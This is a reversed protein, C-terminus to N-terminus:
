RPHQIDIVVRPPDALRFVRFPQEPASLGIFVQQYGEFLVGRQVETVVGASAPEIRDPGRYEQAGEAAPYRVGTVNVELVSRGEIEVPDGRGQNRPDDEYEAFWGPRGHGALDVVVRDYGEHRGFRLDTISVRGQSDAEDRSRDAPFPAEEPPPEEDDAPATPSPSPSGTPPPLASGGATPTPSPTTPRDPVATPSGQDSCAATLSLLLVAAAAALRPRM